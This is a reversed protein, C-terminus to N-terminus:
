WELTELEDEPARVLRRVMEDLAEQVDSMREPRKGPEYSLCRHILECLVDPADAACDRVPTILNNWTGASLAMGSKDAVPNPAHRWTVLRYMTAGFNYVDTQETVVRLKVQEPAMYEPTGQIRGKNQGKRWALGFDIIKVDGSRSLLINNPKLDAHFVRRRHMHALGAAARAFIQVLRPVALRPMTDLTKGNVYEILLHVTRVRFLWDRELEIAYIKILSPHDLLQAIEYEHRAQDLYKQDQAGAVPVVKLAYNTSDASRRVHLITSHAGTGLSGLVQFKGIKDINM